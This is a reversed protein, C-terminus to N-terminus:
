PTNSDLGNLINYGETTMDEDKIEAQRSFTEQLLSGCDPCNAYAWAEDVKNAYLDKDSICISCFFKFM